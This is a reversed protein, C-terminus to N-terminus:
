FIFIFLPCTVPGAEEEKEKRREKERGHRSQPAHAINSVGAVVKHVVLVFALGGALLTPASLSLTHDQVPVAGVELNRTIHPFHAM